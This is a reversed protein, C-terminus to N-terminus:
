RTWRNDNRRWLVTEDEAYACEPNLWWTADPNWGALLTAGENRSLPIAIGPTTLYGLMTLHAADYDAAVAAWDPIYWHRYEGTTEFWVSRRSESVDMPYADVLREWDTPNSIEYVRPTGRVTVPWVRAENGGFSDEELMLELAGVEERARSTEFAASMAPTSWWEGGIENDPREIRWDRFRAENELVSTRWDDLGASVPRYPTTSQPREENSSLNQIMRQDALHVPDAWWRTLPSDLVAAAIPRLATVLDPAAFWYDEEDPPQWYRAWDTAFGLADFLELESLGGVSQPDVAEIIELADAQSSPRYTDAVRRDISCLFAINACVFRGRPSELVLTVTDM